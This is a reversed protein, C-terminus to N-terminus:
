FSLMYNWLYLAFLMMFYYNIRLLLPNSVCSPLASEQMAQIDAGTQRSRLQFRAGTSQNYHLLMTGISEGSRYAM